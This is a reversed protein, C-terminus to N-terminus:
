ADRKGGTYLMSGPVGQIPRSVQDTIASVEEKRRKSLSRYPAEHPAVYHTAPFFKQRKEGMYPSSGLVQLRAGGM